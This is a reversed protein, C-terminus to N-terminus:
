RRLNTKQYFLSVATTFTPSPLDSGAFGAFGPICELNGIMLSTLTDTLPTNSTIM